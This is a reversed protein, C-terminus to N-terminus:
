RRAKAKLFRAKRAARALEARIWAQKIDGLRQAVADLQEILVEDASQGGDLVKSRVSEPLAAHREIAEPLHREVAARVDFVEDAMLAGTGLAGRLGPLLESLLVGITELRETQAANLAVAHRALGDFRTALALDDRAAARSRSRMWAGVAAAVLAYALTAAAVGPVLGFGAWISAPAILWAPAAYLLPRAGAGPSGPDLAAAVEHELSPLGGLAARRLAKSCPGTVRGREESDIWRQLVRQPSRPHQPEM